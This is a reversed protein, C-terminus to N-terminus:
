RFYHLRRTLNGLRTRNLFRNARSEVQAIGYDRATAIANNVIPPAGPINPIQPIIDGPRINTLNGISNVSGSIAQIPNRFPVNISASGGFPFSTPLGMPSNNDYVTLDRGNGDIFLFEKFAFSVDQRGLEVNGQDFELAGVTKPFCELLKVGARRQNNKDIQYIEIDRVYERYYELAYTNPKYIFDQWDLFYKRERHEASLYFTFSVDEAYTLGQAIEHTPGYINDNTVSRINKGPMTVKEVRYSVHRDVMPDAEAQAPAIIRAEFRNLQAPGGYKNFSAVFEDLFDGAQAM